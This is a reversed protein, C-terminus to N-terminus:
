KTKSGFLGEKIERLGAKVQQVGDDIRKSAGELEAIESDTLDHNKTM